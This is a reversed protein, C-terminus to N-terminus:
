SNDSCSWSATPKALCLLAEEQSVTAGNESCPKVSCLAAKWSAMASLYPQVGVFMGGVQTQPFRKLTSCASDHELPPNGETLCLSICYMVAVSSLSTHLSTQTSGSRCGSIDSWSLPAEALWCTPALSSM